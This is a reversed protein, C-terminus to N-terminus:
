GVPQTQGDCSVSFFLLVFRFWGGIAFDAGQPRGVDARVCAKEDIIPIGLELLSNSPRRNPFPLHLINSVLCCYATHSRM